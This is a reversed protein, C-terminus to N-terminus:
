SATNLKRYFDSMDCLAVACESLVRDDLVLMITNMGHRSPRTRVMEGLVEGERRGSKSYSM